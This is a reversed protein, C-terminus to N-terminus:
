FAEGTMAPEAAEAPADTGNPKALYEINQANLVHKSRKEGDETEWREHILDGTACILHGKGLQEAHVEAIPGWVTIDLYDAVKGRKKGAYRNTAISLTCLATEGVTKIEPAATLHGVATMNFM